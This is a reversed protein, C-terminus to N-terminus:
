KLESGSLGASREPKDVWLGSIELSSHGDWGMFELSPKPEGELEFYEVFEQRHTHDGPEGSLMLWVGLGDSRITIEGQQAGSDLAGVGTGWSWIAGAYSLTWDVPIAVQEGEGALLWPRKCSRLVPDGAVSVNAVWGFVELTAKNGGMPIYSTPSMYSHAGEWQAAADRPTVGQYDQDWDWGSVEWQKCTLAPHADASNCGTLLSFLLLLM